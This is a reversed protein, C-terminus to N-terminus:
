ITVSKISILPRGFSKKDMMGTVSFTVPIVNFPSSYGRTFAVISIPDERPTLLEKLPAVADTEISFPTKITM